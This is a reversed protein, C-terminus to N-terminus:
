VDSLYKGGREFSIQKVPIEEKIQHTKVMDAILLKLARIKKNDMKEGVVIGDICDAIGHIFCPDSADTVMVYRFENEGAWDKQKCFFKVDLYVKNNEFFISSTLAGIDNIDAEGDAYEKICDYSIEFPPLRDKYTVRKAGLLKFKVSKDILEKLKKVNFLFCVGKHDDGYQAWMRANAYSRYTKDTFYRDDEKDYPSPETIKDDLRFSIYRVHQEIKPLVKSYGTTDDEAIDIIHVGSKEETTDNSKNSNSVKFSNGALIDYGASYDTYHSVYKNKNNKNDFSSNFADNKCM